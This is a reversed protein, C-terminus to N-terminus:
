MQLSRAVGAYSGVCTWTPVSIHRQAAGARGATTCKEKTLGRADTARRISVLARRMRYPDFQGAFHQSFGDCALQRADRVMPILSSV